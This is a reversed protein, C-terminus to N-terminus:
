HGINHYAFTHARGLAWELKSSYLTLSICIRHSFPLFPHRPSLSFSPFILALPLSTSASSDEHSHIILHTIPGLRSDARDLACATSQMRIPRQHLSSFGAGGGPGRAPQMAPRCVPAPLQKEDKNKDPVSKKV